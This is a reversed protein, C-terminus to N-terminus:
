FGERHFQYVMSPWDMMEQGAPTAELGYWGIEVAGDVRGAVRGGLHNVLIQAGLCIGLYPKGSKLISMWSAPKAASARTLTM